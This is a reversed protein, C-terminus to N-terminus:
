RRTKVVTGCISLGSNWRRMSTIRGKRITFWWEDHFDACVKSRGAPILYRGRGVLRRQRFKEFDLYLISSPANAASDKVFDFRIGPIRPLWREVLGRESISVTQPRQDLDVYYALIRRTVRRMVQDPLLAKEKEQSAVPQMLLFLIGVALLICSGTIKSVIIGKGRRNDM